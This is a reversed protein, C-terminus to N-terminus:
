VSRYYTYVQLEATGSIVATSEITLISPETVPVSFFPEQSLDVAGTAVLDIESGDAAIKLVHADERMTALELTESAGLSGEVACLGYVTGSEAGALKIRPDSIEGTYRLRVSGPLHGAPSIMASMQGAADGAYRLASDYRLSATYRLAEEAGTVAVETALPRTWPTLQYLASECELWALQSLESKNIYNLAVKAQFELEGFPCYILQLETAALAWDVLERYHQYAHPRPFTLTFSPTLQPVAGTDNIAFFGERLDHFTPALSVGLGAPSVLYVGAAGNLDWRTGAQNQLYFKRM